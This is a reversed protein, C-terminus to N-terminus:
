ATCVSRKCVEGGLALGQCMRLVALLVPAVMGAQVYTPLAGILITPVSICLISLLLTPRRGYADGLHGFLVSGVPRSIFGLAWIAWYGLAQARADGQCFFVATLTASLQSYITFDYWEIITGACMAVVLSTFHPRSIALVNGGAVTIANPLMASDEAIFLAATV